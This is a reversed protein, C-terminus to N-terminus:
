PEAVQEFTAQISARNKYPITKSWSKCIYKGSSEGTPTWTFSEQAKRAVLFDEIVDADTESINDWRPQYIKLDQNLGFVLRSSYGDGYKVELARPNSTKTIGYSPNPAAPSTSPNPYIAM